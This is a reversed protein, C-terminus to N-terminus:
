AVAEVRVERINGEGTMFVLVSVLDIDPDGLRGGLPVREAMRRENTSALEAPGLRLARVERRGSVHGM